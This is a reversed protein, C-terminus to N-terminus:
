VDSVRRRLGSMPGAHKKALSRRAVDSLSSMGRLLGLQAPQPPLSSVSCMFVSAEGMGRGMTACQGKLHGGMDGPPCRASTLGVAWKACALIGSKLAGSTFTSESFVRFFPGDLPGGHRNLPM